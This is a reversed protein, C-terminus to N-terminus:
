EMTLNQGKLWLQGRQVMQQTVQNMQNVQEPSMVMESPGEVAKGAGQIIQSALGSTGTAM